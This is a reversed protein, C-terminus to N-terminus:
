DDRDAGLAAADGSGAVQGGDTAKLGAATGRDGAAARQLTDLLGDISYPKVLLGEFMSPDIGNESAADFYGSSLVVPVNSGAARLRRLVEAGDLDPMVMDLMVVDPLPHYGILLELARAGGEAEDVQYGNRELTRRAVSRILPEDDVVLVRLSGGDKGVAPARVTPRAPPRTPTRTPTRTPDIAASAAGRSAVAEAAPLLISVSTSKGPESEALIAGGHSAVLGASATLGLGRGSGKTSFFPEFIRALVDERMGAGSDQVEVSVWRGPGIPKGIATSWRPGPDTITTVIVKIQGAGDRLAEAANTVVSTLVQMLTVRDGMVTCGSDVTADLRITPNLKPTVETAVERWLEGMDVLERPLLDRLGSYALMQRTLQAARQGADQIAEVAHRDAPRELRGLLLEANGLVGVLLNNFDHAIGGALVGLSELRHLRETRQELKRREEELRRPERLDRVGAVRVPRGDLTSMVSTVSLPVHAGGPSVATLEYSRVDATAAADLVSQRSDPTVMDPVSRGIFGERSYGLVKELPGGVDLVVGNSTVIVLDFAHTVLNRLRTESERLLAAARERETVDRVAVVRVPKEGLQGQKSHLEARFRTGDRRVGTIVYEGEQRDAMRQLVRPVDEPAVCLKIPSAGIIEDPPIGLMESLRLNADLIVGDAHVFIGEFAASSLMQYRERFGRAKDREVLRAVALKLVDRIAGLLDPALASAARTGLRELAREGDRVSVGPAIKAPASDDTPPPSETLGLEAVLALAKALARGPDGDTAASLLRSLFGEGTSSVRSDSGPPAM